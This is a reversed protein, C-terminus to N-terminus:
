GSAAAEDSDVVVVTKTDTEGTELDFEWDETSTPRGEPIVWVNADEPPTDTGIHVGSAGAPGAPGAPGPPGEPGRQVMGGGSIRGNSKVQGSVGNSGSISGTLKQKETIM